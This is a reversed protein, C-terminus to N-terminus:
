AWEQLSSDKNLTKAVALEQKHVFVKRVPSDHTNQREDFSLHTKHVPSDRNVKSTNYHVNHGRSFIALTSCM